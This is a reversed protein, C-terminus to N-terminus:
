VLHINSNELIINKMLFLKHCHFKISIIKLCRDKFENTYMGRKLRIHNGGTLFTYFECNLDKLQSYSPNPLSAVIHNLTATFYIKIENFM